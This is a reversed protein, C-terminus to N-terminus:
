RLDIEVELNDEVTADSSLRIIDDSALMRDIAYETTVNEAPASTLTDMLTGDARLLTLTLTPTGTLQPIHIILTKVLGGGKGVEVQGATGGGGVLKSGDGFALHTADEEAVISNGVVGGVRAEFVQTTDANTTAEVDPNAVTGVSYETGPTGSGNVAAKINDLTVAASAGIKIQNPITDVGGALNAGGAVLHADSSVLAIDDGDTGATLATITIAHSSVDGSTVLPHATCNKSHTVGWQASTGKIADALNQLTQDPDEGPDILVYRATDYPDYAPLATEIFTYVLSGVQVTAGDAVETEDSTLTQSSAVAATLTSKLTYVIGGLTITGNNDPNTADSTLTDAAKVLTATFFLSLTRPIINKLAQVVNTM